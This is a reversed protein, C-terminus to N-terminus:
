RPLRRLPAVLARDRARALLRAWRGAQRGVLRRLESTLRAPDFIGRSALTESAFVERIQAARERTWNAEPNTFGIKSRRTRNAEPMKGKMAQRYM